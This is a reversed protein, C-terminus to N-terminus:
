RNGEHEPKRQIFIDLNVALSKDISVVVSKKTACEFYGEKSMYFEAGIGVPGDVISIEGDRKVLLHAYRIDM